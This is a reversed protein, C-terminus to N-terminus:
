RREEQGFGETLEDDPDDDVEDEPVPGGDAEPHANVPIEGGAVLESWTNAAGADALDDPDEEFADARELDLAALPGTSTPVGTRSRLDNRTPDERAVFRAFTVTGIFALGTLTLMAPLAWPAEAHATYLALGLVLLVVLMDTAVARDLITPGIIMRVVVAVATLALVAGLVLLVVSFATM